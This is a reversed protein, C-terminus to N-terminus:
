RVQFPELSYVYFIESQVVLSAWNKEFCSFLEPTLIRCAERDRGPIEDIPVFVMNRVLGGCREYEDNAEEDTQLTAVQRSKDEFTVQTRMNMNVTVFRRDNILDSRPDEPGSYIVDPDEFHPVYM